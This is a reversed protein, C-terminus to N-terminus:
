NSALNSMSQLMRLHKQVVPVIKAATMKLNPDSGGQAYGQQVQLAEQHSQTQQQVYTSDFQDGSTAQLAAILQQQDPRLAPPTPNLGSKAAAATVDQTSKTHEKIMEKGFAKVKSSKGMSQALQGEQIEFMDSQAAATLYGSTSMPSSMAGSSMGSSMSGSSMSGSSMSSPSGQAGSTTQAHASAAALAAAVALSTIRM